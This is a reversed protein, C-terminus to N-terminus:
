GKKEKEWERRKEDGNRHSRYKLILYIRVETVPLSLLIVCQLRGTNFSVCFRVMM